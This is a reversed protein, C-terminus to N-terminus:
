NMNKTENILRNFTIKVLFLTDEDTHSFKMATQGGLRVFPMWPAADPNDEKLAELAKDTHEQLFYSPQYTLAMAFFFKAFQIDNMHDRQSFYDCVGLLFHARCLGIFDESLNDPEEGFVNKILKRIIPQYSRAGDFVADDEILPMLTRNHATFSKLIKTIGIILVVISVLGLILSWISM